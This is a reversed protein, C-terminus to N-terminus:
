KTGTRLRDLLQKKTSLDQSVSTIEANLREREAARDRTMPGQAYSLQSLQARLLQLKVDMTSTEITLRNIEQGTEMRSFKQSVEGAHAYRDDIAWLLGVLAAIAGLTTVGGGVTHTLWRM